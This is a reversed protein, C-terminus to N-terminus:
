VKVFPGELDAIEENSFTMVHLGEGRRESYGIMFEGEDNRILSYDGITDMDPFQLSLSWDKGDESFRLFLEDWHECGSKFSKRAM